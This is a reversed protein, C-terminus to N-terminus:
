FNQTHFKVPNGEEDFEITNLHEDIRKYILEAYSKDGIFNVRISVKAINPDAQIITIKFQNNAGVILYYSGDAPPDDRTIQYGLEECTHKTARYLMESDGYYYKHAEGQIWMVVGTVVPGALPAVQCGFFALFLLCIALNKM